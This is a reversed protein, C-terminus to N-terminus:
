EPDAESQDLREVVAATIDHMSSAWVVSGTDRNFVLDLDRAEAVAKVAPALKALFQQQVDQQLSTLERQADETLRKLEVQLRELDRTRRARAEDSLVSSALQQQVQRVETNKATIAATKENQLATIRAQAAQGTKSQTFARQPSLYALRPVSQAPAAPALAGLTLVVGLLIRVHKGM